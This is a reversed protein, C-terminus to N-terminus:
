DPRNSIRPDCLFVEKPRKTPCVYVGYVMDDWEETCADRVTFSNNENLYGSLQEQPDNDIYLSPLMSFRRRQQKTKFEVIFTESVPQKFQQDGNGLNGGEFLYYYDKGSGTTAKQWGDQPEKSISLTVDAM